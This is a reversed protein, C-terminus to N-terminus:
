AAGGKLAIMSHLGTSGLYLVHSLDLLIRAQPENRLSATQSDFASATNADLRGAITVVRIGQVCEIQAVSSAPSASM